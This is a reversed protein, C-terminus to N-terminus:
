EGIILGQAMVMVRCAKKVSNIITIKGSLHSMAPDNKTTLVIIDGKIKNTIPHSKMSLPRVLRSM